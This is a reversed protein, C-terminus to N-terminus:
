AQANEEDGKMTQEILEYNKNKSVDYNNIKENDRLLRGVVVFQKKNDYGFFRAVEEAIDCLEILDQRFTPVTIMNTAEDYKLELADFYGLMEEKTLNFGILKNIRDVDM